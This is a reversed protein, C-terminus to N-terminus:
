ATWTSKSRAWSARCRRLPRPTSITSSFCCRIAFRRSCRNSARSARRMARMLGAYRDRSADLQQESRRRLSADSYADLEAEWEEFLAEAVDEVADIRDSVEKARAESRRLESELRDYTKQLSSEPNGLLAQFQELASSFQEKAEVQSDRASEVRSALIERKPQGLKEMTSYYISSCGAVALVSAILVM